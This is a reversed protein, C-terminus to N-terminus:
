FGGRYLRLYPCHTYFTEQLSKLSELQALTTDKPKVCFTNWVSVCKSYDCLWQMFDAYAEPSELAKLYEQEGYLEKCIAILKENHSPVAYEITGDPKIIVELYDIFNDAHTQLDFKGHLIDLNNM